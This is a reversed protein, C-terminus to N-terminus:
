INEMLVFKDRTSFHNNDVFKLLTKEKKLFNIYKYVNKSNGISLYFLDCPNSSARRFKESHNIYLHNFRGTFIM